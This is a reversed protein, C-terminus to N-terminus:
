ACLVESTPILDQHCIFLIVFQYRSENRLGRKVSLLLVDGPGRCRYSNEGTPEYSCGIDGRGLESSLSKLPLSPCSPRGPLPFPEAFPYIPFWLSQVAASLPGTNSLFLYQPLPHAIPSFLYQPGYYLLGQMGSQPNGRLPESGLLHGWGLSSNFRIRNRLHLAHPQHRLILSTWMKGSLRPTPQPM